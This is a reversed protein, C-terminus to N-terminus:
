KRQKIQTYLWYGVATGLTNHFVDDVECLGRGTLYQTLEICVSFLAGVCIVRWPKRFWRFLYPLFGGLPLLMVLNGGIQGLWYGTRAGSFLGRWEWLPVLMCRRTESTRDILAVVEAMAPPQDGTTPRIMCLDGLKADPGASEITLGVVNVVKGMRVFYNEDEANKYKQFNVTVDM